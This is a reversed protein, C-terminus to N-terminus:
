VFSVRFAVSADGGARRMILGVLHALNERPKTRWQNWFGQRRVCAVYLDLLLVKLHKKNIRENGYLGVLLTYIHNVFTNVEPYDSWRHVDLPRVNTLSSFDSTSMTNILRILINLPIYSVSLIGYVYRNNFGIYM